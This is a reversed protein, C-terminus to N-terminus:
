PLTASYGWQGSNATWTLSVYKNSPEAVFVQLNDGTSSPTLTTAGLLGLGSVPYVGVKIPFSSWSNGFSWNSSQLNGTNDIYFADLTSPNRSVISVVANAAVTPQTNSNPFALGSGWSEGMTWSAFMPAGQSQFFYVDLNSWTRAVAAIPSYNLEIGTTIPLTNWQAATGLEADYTYATWLTGDGGVFFIDINQQTRAVAALPQGEKLRASSPMPIERTEFQSFGAQWYYQLLNGSKDVHFVSEANAAPAVAALSAGGPAGSYASPAIAFSNWSGGASWWSEQVHGQLDFSYTQLVSSNTAVAATNGNGGNPFQTIAGIAAQGWNEGGAVSWFDNFLHPWCFLGSCIDKTYFTDMNGPSRAVVASSSQMASPTAPTGLTYPSCTGYFGSYVRQVFWAHSAGQFTTYQPNGGLNSATQCCDGIENCSFRNNGGNADSAAEIVEHSIVMTMDNIYGLGTPRNKGFFASLKNNLATDIDSIVAFNVNQGAEIGGFSPMQFNGHFAIQSNGNSDVLSWTSPPLHVVYITNNDPQPVLNSNIDRILENEVDGQTWWSSQLQPTIPFQGKYWAGSSSVGYEKLLDIYQGSPSVLDAYFPDEIQIMAPNVVSGYLGTFNVAVIEPSAAVGPPPNFLGFNERPSPSRVSAAAPSRVERAVPDVTLAEGAAATTTSSNEVPPGSGPQADVACGLLPSPLAAAVVLAFRFSKRNM